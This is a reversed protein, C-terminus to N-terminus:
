HGAGMESMLEFAPLYRAAQGLLRPVLEREPDVEREKLLEQIGDKVSGRVKAYTAMCADSNDLECLDDTPDIPPM